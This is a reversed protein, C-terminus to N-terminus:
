WVGIRNRLCIKELAYLFIGTTLPGSGEFLAALPFVRRTVAAGFVSSTRRRSRRFGGFNRADSRARYDKPPFVFHTEGKEEDPFVWCPYYGDIDENDGWGHSGPADEASNAVAWGDETLQATLREEDIIFPLRIRVEGDEVTFAYEEHDGVITGATDDGTLRWNQVNMCRRWVFIGQLHM